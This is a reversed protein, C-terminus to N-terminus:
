LGFQDASIIEDTSGAEEQYGLKNSSTCVIDEMSIEIIEMRPKVYTTELKRMDNKGKM